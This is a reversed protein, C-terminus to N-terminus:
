GFALTAVAVRARGTLFAEQAATRDAEELGAHYVVTAREVQRIREAVEDAKKRTGVYIIGPGKQRALLELLFRDKDDRGYADLVSLALNPRDFGHVHVDVEDAALGLCEIIDARVRPTATATLATVPPTGIRARFEKLRRYDPRFDHGWASICHAEDVALRSVKVKALVASFAANRFREPAVYLLRIEGAACRALRDRQEALPLSSNVFAAPVGKATLDDVQDKMLAILPSVVVTLGGDLMAPLQYLLSKGSGTPMVALVNRGALVSTLAEDQGMRFDAYGFSQRLMARAAALPDDQREQGRTPEM